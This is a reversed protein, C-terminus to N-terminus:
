KQEDAIQWKKIEDMAAKEDLWGEFVMVGSEKYGSFWRALIAVADPYDAQLCSLTTCNITRHEINLPVAIIKNDEEGRDKLQLIGIPVVELVIGQPLAGSILLIDLPDGDGGEKKGVLTSPIFGYNGPYPLFAIKREKGDIVELAFTKSKRSYEYKLNTGAPIEIVMNVHGEASLAPYDYSSKDCAIVLITLLVVICIKQLKRRLSSM